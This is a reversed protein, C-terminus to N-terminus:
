KYYYFDVFDFSKNLLDEIKIYRFSISQGPVQYALIIHKNDPDFNFLKPYILTEIGSYTMDLVQLNKSKENFVTIIYNEDLNTDELYSFIFFYDGTIGILTSSTEIDLSPIYLKKEKDKLSFRYLDNEELYYAYGEKFICNLYEGSSDKPLLISEKKEFNNLDVQRIEFLDKNESPEFERFMYYLANDFVHFNTSTSTKEIPDKFVIEFTNWDLIGVFMDTSFNQGLGLGEGSSKQVMELGIYVLYDGALIFDDRFGFLDLEAIKRRNEGDLDSKYIHAKNFESPKVFLYLHGERIIAAIPNTGKPFTAPCQPDPNTVSDYPQHNCDPRGCMITPEGGKFDFYELYGKTYAMLGNPSVSAFHLGHITDNLNEGKNNCGPILVMSLIFLFLIIPLIKKNKM